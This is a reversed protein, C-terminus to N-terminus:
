APLGKAEREKRIARMAEKNSMGKTDVAPQPPATPRTNTNAGLAAEQNLTAQADPQSPQQGKAQVDDFAIRKFTETVSPMQGADIQRKMDAGVADQHKAYLEGHTQQLQAAENQWWQRTNQDQLQRISEQLQKVTEGGGAERQLDAKFTDFMTGLAVKTTEGINALAPSDKFQDVYSKPPKDAVPPPQNGAELQGQIRAVQERLGGVENSQKGLQSQSDDLQKQTKALLAKAEELTKPEEVAPQSPAPQPAQLAGPAPATQAPTTSGPEPQATGAISNKIDLYSRQETQDSVDEAEKTM